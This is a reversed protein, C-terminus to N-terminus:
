DSNGGRLVADTSIRFERCIDQGSDFLKSVVDNLEHCDHFVGIICGKSVLDGAEKSGRASITTEKGVFVGLKM